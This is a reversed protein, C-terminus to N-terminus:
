TVRSRQSISESIFNPTFFITLILVQFIFISFAPNFVSATLVHPLSSLSEILWCPTLFCFNSTVPTGNHPFTALGKSEQDNHSVMGCLAHDQSLLHPLGSPTLLEFSGALGKRALGKKFSDRWTLTTPPM